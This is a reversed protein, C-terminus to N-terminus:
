AQWSYLADPLKEESQSGDTEKVKRFGHREYFRIARSNEQFVWLQLFHHTEKARNLLAEGLRMGVHSPLLYLHDIWDERFACFGVLAGNTEVVWVQCEEFVVNRFYAKDEEFSHLAPLYPLFHKRSQRSIAAVLDSDQLNAQRIM